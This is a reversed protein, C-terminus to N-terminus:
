FKESTPNLFRKGSRFLYSHSKRKYVENIIGTKGRISITMSNEDASWTGKNVQDVERSGNTFYVFMYKATGDENLQYIEASKVSPVNDVEVMYVGSHMKRFESIKSKTIGQSAKRIIEISDLYAVEASDIVKLYKLSISYNEMGPKVMKFQNRALVFNKSNYSKLAEQYYDVKEGCSFFLMLVLISIIKRTEM